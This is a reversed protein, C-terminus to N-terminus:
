DLECELPANQAHLMQMNEFFSFLHVHYTQRNHVKHLRFLCHQAFSLRIYVAVALTCSPRYVHIIYPNVYQGTLPVIDTM